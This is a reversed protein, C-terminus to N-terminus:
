QPQVRQRQVHVPRCGRRHDRGLQQVEVQLRRRTPRRGGRVRDGRVRRAGRGGRERGRQPLLPH